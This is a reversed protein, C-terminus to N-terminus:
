GQLRVRYSEYGSNGFKKNYHYNYEELNKQENSSQNYPHVHTPNPGLEYLALDM